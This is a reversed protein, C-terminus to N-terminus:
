IVYGTLTVTGPGSVGWYFGRIDLGPAIVGSVEVNSANYYSAFNITLDTTYNDVNWVVNGITQLGIRWAGGGIDEATATVSVANQATINGWGFKLEWLPCPNRSVTFRLQNGNVPQAGGVETQSIFIYATPAYCPFDSPRYSGGAMGLTNAPWSGSVIEIDTVYIQVGGVTAASMGVYGGMHQFTFLYVSTDSDINEEFELYTDTWPSVPVLRINPFPECDECLIEWDNDPDDGAATIRLGLIGFDVGLVTQMQRILALVLLHMLYVPTDTGFDGTNLYGIIVKLAEFPDDPFAEAAKEEYYGILRDISVSCDGKVICFIECRISDYLAEDYAGIYDEAIEEVLQDAFQLLEDFPVVQGFIPVSSALISARELANTGVEIAEFLDETLDHLLQVTVSVQNFIYDFECQGPKLLNKERDTISLTTQSALNTIYNNIDPDTLVLDKIANRTDEDNEICDIILACISQPMEFNRLFYWNVEESRDPYTLIAGKDVCSYLQTFERQSLFFSVYIQTDEDPFVVPNYDGNAELTEEGLRWMFRLLYPLMQWTM